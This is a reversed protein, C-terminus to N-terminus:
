SCLEAVSGVLRPLVEGATGRLTVDAISSLDSEKHNVEASTGAGTLAVGAGRETIMQAAKRIMDKM